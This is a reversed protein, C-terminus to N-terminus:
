GMKKKHAKCEAKHVAWATKQCAVSCYTPALTCASCRLLQPLGADRSTKYCSVCRDVSGLSTQFSRSAVSESGAAVGGGAPEKASQAQAELWGARAKVIRQLEDVSLGDSPSLKLLAGVAEQGKALIFKCDAHKGVILSLVVNLMGSAQAACLRHNEDHNELARSVAYLASGPLKQFDVTIGLAHTSAQVIEAAKSDDCAQLVTLVVKFGGFKGFADQFARWNPLARACELIKSILGCGSVLIQATKNTISRPGSSAALSMCQLVPQMARLGFSTVSGPMSVLLNRLDSFVSSLVHNPENLLKPSYEILADAAGDEILQVMVAQASDPFRLCAQIAQSIAMSGTSVVSACEIHKDHERMAQVVHRLCGASVAAQVRHPCLRAMYYFLTCANHQLACGQMNQQLLRRLLRLRDDRAVRKSNEPVEPVLKSLAAVGTTQVGDIDNKHANLALFIADVAEKGLIERNRHCLRCVKAIAHCANSVVDCLDMHKMIIRCLVTLGPEERQVSTNYIACIADCFHRLKHPQYLFDSGQTPADLVVRLGALLTATGGKQWMCAINGDGGLALGTLVQYGVAQIVEQKPYTRMIKVVSEISADAISQDMESRLSLLIEMGFRLLQLQPTIGYIAWMEEINVYKDSEAHVGINVFNMGHGRTRGHSLLAKQRGASSLGKTFSSHQLGDAGQVTQESGAEHQPPTHKQLAALVARLLARTTAQRLAILDGQLNRLLLCANVQLLISSEHKTMTTLLMDMGNERVFLNRSPGSRDESTCMVLVSLINSQLGVADPHAPMVRMLTTVVPLTDMRSFGERDRQACLLLEGMCNAFFDEDSFEVSFRSQMKNLCAHVEVQVDGHAEAAGNTRRVARPM